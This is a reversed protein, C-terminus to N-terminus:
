HMSRASLLTVREKSEEIKFIGTRSHSGTQRQDDLVLKKASNARAMMRRNSPGVAMQVVHKREMPVIRPSTGAPMRRPNSNSTNSMRDLREGSGSRSMTHNSGSRPVSRSRPKGNSSGNPSMLGQELIEQPSSEADNGTQSTESLISRGSCDLTPVGPKPLTQSIISRDSGDLTTIGRQPLTHSTISRDSSDLASIISQDSVNNVDVQHLNPEDIGLDVEDSSRRRIPVPRKGGRRKQERPTGWSNSRSIGSTGSAVSPSRSIEMHKGDKKRNSNINRTVNSIINSSKELDVINTAKPSIPFNGVLATPASSIITSATTTQTNVSFTRDRMSTKVNQHEPATLTLGNAASEHTVLSATGDGGDPMVFFISEHETLVSSRSSNSNGIEDLAFSITSVSDHNSRGHCSTIPLKLSFARSEEDDDDDDNIDDDEPRESESVDDHETVDMADSSSCAFGDDVTREEYESDEEDVLEYSAEGESTLGSNHFSNIADSTDVSRTARKFLSRNAHHRRKHPKEPQPSEEKLPMTFEADDEETSEEIACGSILSADFFSEETWYSSLSEGPHQASHNSPYTSSLAEKNMAEPKSLLISISPEVSPAIALTEMRSDVRSNSHPVVSPLGFTSCIINASSVQLHEVSVRKTM